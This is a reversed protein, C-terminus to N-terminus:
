KEAISRMQIKEAGKPPTFTFESDAVSAALNWTAFTIHLQPNGERHFTAILKKLLHDNVGIWMEADAEKGTLALHECEMGESAAPCTSRGIYSVASAEGRFEKYPDSVAFEALPPVFGYIKDIQDVLGDISTDMPISSYFNMKADLLSFTKGDAYLRREGKETESTAMVKNPRQVTVDVDASQAVDSGPILAADMERHAKFSYQRAAALKACMQQLIQDGNPKDPETAGAPLTALEFLAAVTLGAVTLTINLKM